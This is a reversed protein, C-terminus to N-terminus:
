PMPVARARATVTIPVGGAWPALVAGVLPLRIVATLTVEATVGDPTGTPDAIALRTSRVDARSDALYTAVSDRVSADTLQVV